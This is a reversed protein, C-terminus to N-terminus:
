KLYRRAGSFESKYPEVNISIIEVSRSFNPSHIMKGNGIYMSVHHVAGKGKNHAFFMLDGPQLNKKEVAIGQKAQESSDRPILIGHQKYISYTFGSCDFGYASNGAWLYPIDLFKKGTDVLDKQSPKPISEYNHFQKINQKQFYKIEKKPTLVQLWDKEEKVIPLITNFSIEMFKSKTSAENYLNAKNVSVLAISCDQNNLDYESIHSKPVWGPYGSKNKSTEQDNVAIKYWNGSNKLITVEQGYLAQSEIKGLLWLKQQKTMNKTWNALDVPASIVPQDIARTMNPEKWLTTVAVNVVYKKTQAPKYCIGNDAPSAFTTQTHLFVLILTLLIGTVYKKM